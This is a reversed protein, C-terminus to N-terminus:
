ESTSNKISEAWRYKKIAIVLNGDKDEIVKKIRTSDKDKM